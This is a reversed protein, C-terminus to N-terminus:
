EGFDNGCRPDPADVSDDTVAQVAEGIGNAALSLDFPDVDSVLLDGGESGARFRMQGAFEGDAGPATPRAIQMEDVAQEIAMTRAHRHERDGRVDGRPLDARGVELFGMRLDQELFAAMIALEDRAGVLHR